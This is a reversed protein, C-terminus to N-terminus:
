HLMVIDFLSFFILSLLCDKIVTGATHKDNLKSSLQIGM